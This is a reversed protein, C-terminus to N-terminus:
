RMEKIKKNFESIEEALRKIEEDSMRKVLDSMLINANKDEKYKQIKEFIFNANKDLLSPGIIGNAYDNHCASCKLIFEKSLKKVLLSIEIKEYPSRVRMNADINTRPKERVSADKNAPKSNPDYESKINYDYYYSKSGTNKNAKEQVKIEKPNKNEVVEIELPTKNIEEKVEKEKESNSCAIFFILIFGISIINKFM